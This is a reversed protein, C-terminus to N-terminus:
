RLNCSDFRCDPRWKCNSRRFVQFFGSEKSNGGAIKKDIKRCIATIGNNFHWFHEPEKLLTQQLGINVETDVGLFMRINQSVLQPYHDKWWKAVDSAHVQGYVAYPAVAEGWHQLAVELDIPDGQTGRALMGHIESQKLIRSSLLEIADPNASDNYHDLRDQLDRAPEAALDHLGTHVAVLQFTAQSDNLAQRVISEKSRVKANFRDFFPSTLDDFGKMMKLVDSRDLSGNGDSHWKSQVVFLVKSLPDFHLADIGNDGTGDTVTASAEIPTAGTLQVIAFAALARTLFMKDKDTGAQAVDTMDIIGDFMARLAGAIQNVHLISM